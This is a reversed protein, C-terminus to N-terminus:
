MVEAVTTPFRGHRRNFAFYREILPKERPTTPMEMDAEKPASLIAEDGILPYDEACSSILNFPFFCSTQDVFQALYETKFQFDTLSAKQEAIFERSILPCVSYDYHVVTWQSSRSAEYFHNRGWPTGIQVIQGNTASVMPILVTNVVETPIYSSEELVLVSATQGRAGHGDAGVPITKIKSGCTLELESTTEKTIFTRLTPSKNLFAKIKAFMESSQRLTPSAIVITQPTKLLDSLFAFYLCFIAVCSTKGVQRATIVVLRKNETCSELIDRQYPFAEFGLLIFAFATISSFASILTEREHEMVQM